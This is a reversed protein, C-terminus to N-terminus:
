STEDLSRHFLPSCHVGQDTHFLKPETLLFEVSFCNCLCWTEFMYEILMASHLVHSVLLAEM